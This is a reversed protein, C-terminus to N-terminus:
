IADEKKDIVYNKAVRERKNLMSRGSTVLTKTIKNFKSIHLLYLFYLFSFEKDKVFPSFVKLPVCFIICNVCFKPM